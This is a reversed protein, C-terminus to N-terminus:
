WSQPLGADAWMMMAMGMVTDRENGRLREVMGAQHPWPHLLQEGM